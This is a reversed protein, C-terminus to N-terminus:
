AVVVGNYQNMAEEIGQTLFVSIAGLARDLVRVMTIEDDQNPRGLVFDVTDGNGPRGIGIRLRPFADTGLCNIISTMGKHGASSGGPRLRLRGLPLDLDDCVVLLDSPLVKYFHALSGVSTGSLNMYTLPKALVTRRGHIDGQALIAKFQHKSFSLRHEAALREVCQFGVNHRSRAYEIGPNGLGVILIPTRAPSFLGM